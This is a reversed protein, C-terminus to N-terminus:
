AVSPRGLVTVSQSDQPQSIRVVLTGGGRTRHRAGMVPVPVPHGSSVVPGADVDEAEVHIYPHHLM